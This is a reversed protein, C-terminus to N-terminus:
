CTLGCGGGGLYLDACGPPLLIQTPLKHWKLSLDTWKVSNLTFTIFHLAEECYKPYKRGTLHITMKQLFDFILFPILVKLSLFFMPVSRWIGRGIRNIVFAKNLANTCSWMMKFSKFRLHSLIYHFYKKVQSVKIIAPSIQQIDM